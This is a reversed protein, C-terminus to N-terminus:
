KKLQAAKFNLHLIPVPQTKERNPVHVTNRYILKNSRRDQQTVM